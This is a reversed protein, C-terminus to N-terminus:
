PVLVAYVSDNQNTLDADVFSAPIDTLPTITASYRPLKANEANMAAIGLQGTLRGPTTGVQLIGLAYQIGAEVTVPATFAIQNSGNASGFLTTDNATSAILTASGDEEVKYLGIRCLTLGAAAATGTPIRVNSYTGWREPTFFKLRMGGSLPTITGASVLERAMIPQAGDQRYGEIPAPRRVSTLSFSGPMPLAPLSVQAVNTPGVHVDLLHFNETGEMGDQIAIGYDETTQFLDYGTEEPDLTGMYWKTQNDATKPIVQYEQKAAGVWINSITTRRTLGYGGTGALFFIDSGNSASVQGNNHAFWGTGVSEVMRDVYIGHRGNNYSHLGNYSSRQVNHIYIGHWGNLRAVVNVYEAESHDAYIGIGANGEVLAGVMSVSRFRQSLELGNNRNDHVWIRHLWVRRYFDSYGGTGGILGQHRLGSNYCNRIEVDEITFGESARLFIGYGGGNTQVDGIPVDAISQNGMNGDITLNMLRMGQTPTEYTPDGAEIMTANLGNAAKLVTGRGRGAITVNPRAALDLTEDIIYEADDDLTVFGGSAPLNDIQGQITATTKVSLLAPGTKAAYAANLAASTESAPNTILAATQPDFVSAPQATIANVVAARSDSSVDDLTSALSEDLNGDVGSVILAVDDTATVIRKNPEGPEQRFLSGGDITFKDAM